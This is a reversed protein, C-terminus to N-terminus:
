LCKSSMDREPISEETDAEWSTGNLSTLVRGYMNVGARCCERCYQFDHEVKSSSVCTWDLAPM